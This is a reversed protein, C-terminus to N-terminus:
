NINSDMVVGVMRQFVENNNKKSLEQYIDQNHRAEAPSLQYNGIELDEKLDDISYVLFRDNKLAYFMINKKNLYVKVGNGLAMIINAMFIPYLANYIAAKARIFIKIYKELCIFDNLLNYLEPQTSARNRITQSYKSDEKGYSFPLLFSPNGRIRASEIINMVDLHNNAPQRSNGLLILDEKPGLQNILSLGSWYHPVQIFPPLLPWDNKLAQYEVNSIGLFVNIRKQAEIFIKDQYLLRLLRKVGRKFPLLWASQNISITLRSHSSLYLRNYVEFGFFRWGICIHKPLAKVIKMKFEDLGYLTVLDAEQCIRIIDKFNKKKTYQYVKEQYEDSSLTKDGLYVIVNEFEPCRFIRIESIFKSDSHVHIIKKM